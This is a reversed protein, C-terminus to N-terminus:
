ITGRQRSSLTIYWRTQCSFMVGVYCLNTLFLFAPLYQPLFASVIPTANTIGKLQHFCNSGSYTCLNRLIRAANVCVLRVELAQVLSELVGLKLIRQCNNKSDLALMALAEGAKTIVQKDNELMGKNLFINFLEKLVGGTGGVRETADEELALSTLIEIGLQQLM